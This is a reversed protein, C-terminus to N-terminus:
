DRVEGVFYTELLQWAQPSHARGREKTEFASTSEKGCHDTITRPPAPHASLYKTVDYAKGRIVLWCDEPRDHHAVEARSLLRAERPAVPHRSKQAALSVLTSWALMFALAAVLVVRRTNM